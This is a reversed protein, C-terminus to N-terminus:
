TVTVAVVVNLSIANGTDLPNGGIEFEIANLWDTVIANGLEADTVIGNGLEALV